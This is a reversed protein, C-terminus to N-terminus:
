RAAATRWLWRRFGELVPAAKSRFPGGTEVSIAQRFSRFKCDALGALRMDEIMRARLPTM